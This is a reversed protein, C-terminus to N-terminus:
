LRRDFCPRVREVDNAHIRIHRANRERSHWGSGSNKGSGDFDIEPCRHNLVNLVGSLYVMGNGNQVFALWQRVHRNAATVMQQPFCQLAYYIRFCRWGATREGHMQVIRRASQVNSPETEFAVTYRTEDAATPFIGNMMVAYGIM